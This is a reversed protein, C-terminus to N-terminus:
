AGKIDRSLHAGSRYALRSLVTKLLQRFQSCAGNPLPKLDLPLGNWTIPGVVSSSRSQITASRAFPVVLDGYASSRLTRRGTCSSLTAIRLCILAYKLSIKCSCLVSFHRIELSLQSHTLQTRIELEILRNQSSKVQFMKLNGTGFFRENGSIESSTKKTM